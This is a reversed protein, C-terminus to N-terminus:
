VLRNSEDYHSAYGILKVTAKAETSMTNKLASKEEKEKRIKELEAEREKEVDSILLSFYFRSSTSRSYTSSIQAYRLRANEKLRVLELNIRTGLRQSFRRAQRDVRPKKGM